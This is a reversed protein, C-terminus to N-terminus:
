EKFYILIYVFPLINEDINILNNKTLGAFDNNQHFNM